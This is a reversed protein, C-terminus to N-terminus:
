ALVYTCIYVSVYTCIYQICMQITFVFYSDCTHVSTFVFMVYAVVIVVVVLACACEETM